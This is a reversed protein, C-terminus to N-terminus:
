SKEEFLAQIEQFDRLLSKSDGIISRVFESERRRMIDKAILFGAILHPTQSREIVSFIKDCFATVASRQTPTLTRPLIFQIILRSMLTVVAVFVTLPILILLMLLWWSSFSLVLLLMVVWLAAIIIIAMFQVPNFLKKLVIASVARLADLSSNPM